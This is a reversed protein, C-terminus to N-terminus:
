RSGVPITVVPRDASLIVSQTVSGFLAKGTPSRKRGGLVVFRADISDALALIQDAPDGIHGRARVDDPRYDDLARDIFQQAIDQARDVEADVSFDRFEPIKRLEQIHQKADKQPIVHLVQLEEKYATALDYGTHIVEDAGPTEGVAALTVM